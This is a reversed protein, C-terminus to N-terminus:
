RPKLPVYKEIQTLISDPDNHICLIDDVYIFIHFNYKEPGKKSEKTCVKMWLDPDAKNSENGLQKMCDALHSRLADGIEATVEQDLDPFMIENEANPLYEPTDPIGVKLNPM